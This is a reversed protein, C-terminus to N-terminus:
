LKVKDTTGMYLVGSGATLKIVSKDNPNEKKYTRAVYGHRVLDTLNTHVSNPSCGCAKCMEDISIPTMKVGRILVGNQSKEHIYGHLLSALPRIARAVELSIVM